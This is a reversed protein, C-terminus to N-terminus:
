CSEDRFSRIPNLATSHFKIVDSHPDKNVPNVLEKWGGWEIILNDVRIGEGAEARTAYNNDVVSSHRLLNIGSSNEM